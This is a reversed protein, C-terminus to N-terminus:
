GFIRVAAVLGVLGVLIGAAALMAKHRDV